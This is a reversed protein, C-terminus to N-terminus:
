DLLAHTEATAQPKVIHQAQMVIKWTSDDILATRDIIILHLDLASLDYKGKSFTRIRGDQKIAVSGKEFVSCSNSNEFHHM